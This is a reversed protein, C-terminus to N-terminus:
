TALGRARSGANIGARNYQLRKGLSPNKVLRNYSSALHTYAEALTAGSGAMLRIENLAFTHGPLDVRM